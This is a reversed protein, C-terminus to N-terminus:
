NSRFTPAPSVLRSNPSKEATAGAEVVADREPREGRIVGM